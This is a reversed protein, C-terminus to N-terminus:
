NPFLIEAAVAISLIDDYVDGGILFHDIMAVLEDKEDDVYVSFDVTIKEGCAKAVGSVTVQYEGDAIEKSSWKPAIFNEEVLEGITRTESLVPFVNEKVSDTPDFSSQSLCLILTIVFVLVVCVTGAVSRIPRQATKTDIPAVSNQSIFESGDAIARGCETCYKDTGNKIETGCYKCIM